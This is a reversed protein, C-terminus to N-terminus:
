ALKLNVWSQVGDGFKVTGWPTENSRLCEYDALCRWDNKKLRKRIDKEIERSHTGIHLRKAQRNLTEIASSIVKAEEGQVDLDILDVVGADKMVDKLTVSDRAIVRWGSKLKVVERNEYQDHALGAVREHPQMIAQGYWESASNSGSEPGGIYFMANGPKESVVAQILMHDDPNIGNDSLHQVMWQFHRPEAEVAILRVRPQRWHRAACAARVAWRGFGAGLEIFTYNNRAEVVSELLDIWEFYEEDISPYTTHIEGAYGATGAVFSCQTRCGLFDIQYDAQGPGSYLPFKYFVAHHGRAEIM